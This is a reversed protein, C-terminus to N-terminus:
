VFTRNYKASLETGKEIKDYFNQILEVADAICDNFLFILGTNTIFSKPNVRTRMVCGNYVKNLMFLKSICLLVHQKITSPSYFIKKFLKFDQISRALVKPSVKKYGKYAKAMEKLAKNKITPVTIMDSFRTTLPDYGEMMLLVRDFEVEIEGHTFNNKKTVANIYPHCVSDLSFHCIFGCVYSFLDGKSSINTNDFLKDMFVRAPKRHMKSGLKNIKYTNPLALAKYPYFIDPGQLGIEYLKKNTIGQAINEPLTELVRQGHLHHAFFNPM